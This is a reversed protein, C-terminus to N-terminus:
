RAGAEGQAAGGKGLEERAAPAYRSSPYKEVLYRLTADAAQANGKTRFDQALNWLADGATDELRQSPDPERACQLPATVGLALALGLARV